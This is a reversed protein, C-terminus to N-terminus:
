GIAQRKRNAVKLSMAATLIASIGAFMCLLSHRILELQSCREGLRVSHEAPVPEETCKRAVAISCQVASKIVDWPLGLEFDLSLPASTRPALPLLSRIAESL